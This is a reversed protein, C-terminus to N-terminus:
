PAGNRGRLKALQYNYLLLLPLIFVKFPPGPIDIDGLGVRARSAGLSIDGSHIMHNHRAFVKCSPGHSLTPLNRRTIEYRVLLNTSLCACSKMQKNHM